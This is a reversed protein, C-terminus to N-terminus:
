INEGNMGTPAPQGIQQGVLQDATPNLQQQIQEQVSKRIAEVQYPDLSRMTAMLNLLFSCDFKRIQRIGQWKYVRFAQHIYEDSKVNAYSFAMNGCGVSLLKRIYNFTLYHLNVGRLRNGPTLDTVIVLPYPDHKWNVYNFSVLDGKKVVNNQVNNVVNFLKLISPNVPQYSQPLPM